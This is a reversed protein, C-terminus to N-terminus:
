WLKVVIYVSEYQEKLWTKVLLKMYYRRVAAALHNKVAFEFSALKIQLGQVPAQYTGFETSTVSCESIFSIGNM